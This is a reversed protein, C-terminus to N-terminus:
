IDSLEYGRKWDDIFSAYIRLREELLEIQRDKSIALRRTPVIADEAREKV